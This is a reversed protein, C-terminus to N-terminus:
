LNWCSFLIISWDYWNYRKINDVVVSKMPINFWYLILIVAYLSCHSKLFSELMEEYGKGYFFQLINQKTEIKFLYWALPRNEDYNTQHELDNNLDPILWLYLCFYGVM